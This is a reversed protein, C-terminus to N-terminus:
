LRLYCGFVYRLANNEEVSSKLMLNEQKSKEFDQKVEEFNLIEDKLGRIEELYKNEVKQLNDM